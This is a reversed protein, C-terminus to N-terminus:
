FSLLVIYDCRRIRSKVLLIYVIVEHELMSRQPLLKKLVNWATEQCVDPVGEGTKTVM